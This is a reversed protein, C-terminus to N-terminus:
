GLYHAFLAVSDESISKPKPKEAKIVPKNELALEKAQEEIVKRATEVIAKDAPRLFVVSDNLMFKEVFVEDKATKAPVDNGYASVMKAGPYAAEVNVYVKAHPTNIDLVLEGGEFDTKKTKGFSYECNPLHRGNVIVHGVSVRASPAFEKKAITGTQTGNGTINPKVSMNTVVM